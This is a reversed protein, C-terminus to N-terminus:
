FFGEHWLYSGPKITLSLDPKESIQMRVVGPTIEQTPYFKKWALRHVIAAATAGGEIILENIEITKLVNEVLAAMNRALKKSLDSNQAVPHNIAIIAKQNQQFANVVENTWRELYKQQDNDFNFLGPPMDCVPKGNKRAQAVTKRSYESASGCVILAMEASALKIRNRDPEPSMGMTKLLAYFFESGGAPLIQTHTQSAWKILDDQTEAEGIAIDCKPIAAERKMFRIDMDPSADLLELVKSSKIPYEPDNAFDTEALPIKNIFYNGDSITRGFSPNAPILLVTKQDFIKRLAQLEVRVNGRLVSDIKKYIWPKVMDYIQRAIHEIKQVALEPSDSRSDTDIVILDVASNAECATQVEVKLGFRLGVGGLEAAGTLDDALVIIM